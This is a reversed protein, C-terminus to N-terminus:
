KWAFWNEFNRCTHQYNKDTQNQEWVLPALHHALREPDSSGMFHTCLVIRSRRQGKGSNMKKISHVAIAVGESTNHPKPM